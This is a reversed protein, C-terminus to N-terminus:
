CYFEVVGRTTKLTALQQPFPLQPFALQSTPSLGFLNKEVVKGHSENELSQAIQTADITLRLNTPQAM